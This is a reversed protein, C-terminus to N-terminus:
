YGAAQGDKRCESAGYYVGQEANWLIAQYGGVDRRKEDFVHGRRQLDSRVDDSVSSEIFLTGGNTMQEDTPQSSGSHRIRAADGAEQLNMDFDIMNVMIQAHAQPQMSGGMVGFSMLPRGDKMVFAPIITHFPRKGPAYVNAHGDKLSFLTGRNQLMFGLTAPTMGSGMGGYNSQILSVMNGDNDATTLYVTDSNELIADGAELSTAATNASILAARQKAYAKSILAELPATYFDPDAYYTARDEYVLKKAEVLTHVYDASGYGMERLNFNELINLLQLAAIGQGNPPLEFLEYGRYDTSLPMVWESTHTALDEYSLFGGQEQMYQDISKAIDGRYFVDRGQGALQEYVNALAPNRFIQGKVPVSGNPMYVDSFGAFDQRTEADLAWSAAIVESVPFGDRAYNIAPKLIESMSIRGFREHMEFWGDAAGPVSVSLPGLEPISEFKQERLYDLTLSQPSRGSANLGYIQQSEAHWIIAFLDGGLGCGTPEMLGLAANAAIAADIANGGRKL